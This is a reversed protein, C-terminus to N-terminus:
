AASLLKKPCKEVCVNCKLCDADLIQGQEKHDLVNIGVPCDKSCLNCGKCSDVNFTVHNIKTKLAEISAVYYSMTGMPCITCWTRQNFTIGLIITMLTTIIVMRVFVQGVASPDGWALVLQVAFASMLLVLFLNRFWNSKIFKPVAKKYSFKSIVIDSFSGRPCFHGCWMRGKFFAAIVPALMCILALAGIYPFFLGISCFAILVIWFWDHIFKKVAVM